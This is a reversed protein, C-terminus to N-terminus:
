FCTFHHSPIDSSLLLLVYGAIVFLGTRTTAAVAGQRTANDPADLETWLRYANFYLWISSSNEVSSALHPGTRLMFINFSPHPSRAYTGYAAMFVDNSQATAQEAQPEVLRGTVCTCLLALLIGCLASAACRAPRM